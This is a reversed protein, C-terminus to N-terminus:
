MTREVSEPRIINEGKYEFGEALRIYGRERHIPRFLRSDGTVEAVLLRATHSGVDISAINTM